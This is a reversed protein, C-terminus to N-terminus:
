QTRVLESRGARLIRVTTSGEYKVTSVEDTDAVSRLALSLAGTAQGSAVTEAQVPSLELTVTKGVVAADGKTDDAKQDVALVRINSLLTRSLNESQNGAQRTMTQIVDVRDNPLVFGGATSEASVRIAVARKGVPLLAALLGASGRFLKEERIPEGAVLYSRVISGKLSTSADPKTKRSIFNPPIADKPWSQWRLKGDDITQGQSLDTAAVLVDEMLIAPASAVASPAPADVAQKSLVLWGAFGGAGIAIVLVIIRLM